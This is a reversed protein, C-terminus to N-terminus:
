VKKKLHTRNRTYTLAVPIMGSPHYLLFPYGLSCGAQMTSIMWGKKEAFAVYGLTKSRRSPHFDKWIELLNLAPRRGTSFMLM